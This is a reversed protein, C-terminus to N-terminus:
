HGVYSLERELACAPCTPGDFVCPHRNCLKLGNRLLVPYREGMYFKGFRGSHFRIPHTLLEGNPRKCFQGPGADCIPCAVDKM